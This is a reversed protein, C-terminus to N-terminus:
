LREKLMRALDLAVSPALGRVRALLIDQHSKGLRAVRYNTAITSVLIQFGNLIRYYDLREHDVKLGSTQEYLDFFQELPVLGCVYYTGDEYHGMAAQTLWALDRHRDGLHGREWDLWAHIHGSAEDFLFNGSRFDGHVVSVHDLAPLNRQLWNSAVEMMPYDEGRDEEWVRLARDLQWRAGQTSGAAPVDMTKFRRGSVDLTHIAALHKMFQPALLARLRAGFVTGLGSVKGSDTQRPKTVGPAFAYILAPEPFWTADGDLWYVKPVPVIGDFLELLEFERARSTANLSESPDMRVVLRDRTPGRKPDIWSLTFGMQIKSVGGTFWTRDTVEFPGEIRQSLLGQLCKSLDDLGIRTYAPGARRELKRVLLENTERETQFRSRMADIFSRPPADRLDFESTSVTAPTNM